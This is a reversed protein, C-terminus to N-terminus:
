ASRVKRKCYILLRDLDSPSICVFTKPGTLAKQITGDSCALDDGGDDVVCAVVDKPVGVGLKCSRIVSANDQTSMCIMGKAKEKPLPGNSCAYPNNPICYVLKPGSGCGQLTFSCAVSLILCLAHRM